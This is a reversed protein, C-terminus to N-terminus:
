RFPVRFLSARRELLRVLLQDMTGGPLSAWLHEALMRGQEDYLRRLEEGTDLAYSPTTIPETVRVVLSVDEDATAHCVRIEKIV